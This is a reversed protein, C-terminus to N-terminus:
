DPSISWAGNGLDTAHVGDPLMGPFPADGVLTGNRRAREIRDAEARADAQGKAMSASSIGKCQGLAYGYNSSRGMMARRVCDAHGPDPDPDIAATEMASPPAPYWVPMVSPPAYSYRPGPPAVACGALGALVILACKM